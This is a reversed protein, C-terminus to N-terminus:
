VETGGWDVDNLMSVSQARRKAWNITREARFGVANEQWLSVLMTAAAAPTGADGLPTDTMEVSAEQSMSVDVGGEDALYIDSANALVVINTTIYDSVIIPYGFLTGGAGSVSGFEQQGLPNMMMMLASALASNMLFVGSSLPNNAATFQAVLAAIDTRVADADTGVSPIPTVSNTISAPSVNAVAAKTPDIFDIDLRTAIARAIEDRILTNASPSSDRLLEMTAVAINAVKLPALETRTFEFRTVPKGKGEGVWWAAAATSQTLLPTRFPIRRLGPIGGTGFKGLITMPRLYEAFDAVGGTNGILPGAWTAHTSTAAPVSARTVMEQLLIDDPYISQVIERVSMGDLRALVKCQAYRAFPIGKPLEPPAKVVAFPRGVEWSKQVGSGNVPRATMAKTSEVERHRDLQKVLANIDTTLAEFTEDEQADLTRAEAASKELLAARQETKAALENQYRTIVDTEMKTAKTNRPKPIASVGAPTERDAPKHGSAALAASDISRIISIQADANAPVTVLSLEVVETKLFRRPGYPDKQNLPEHDLARFGISVGRILGAKIEGWATDVRDKLSPPESVRALQATFEIGDRTPADFSVTGVPRKSDHQHLLPLPNRFGVGLPEVVDGLRDPTPTTAMGRVIRADEEVAKVTLVSYARDM